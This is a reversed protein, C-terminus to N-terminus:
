ELKFCNPKYIVLWLRVSYFLYRAYVGVRSPAVATTSNMTFPPQKFTGSAAVGNPLSPSTQVKFMQNSPNFPSSGPIVRAANVAAHQQQQHHQRQQQQHSAPSGYADRMATYQPSGHSEAGFSRQMVDLFGLLILLAVHIIFSAYIV